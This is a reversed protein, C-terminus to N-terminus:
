KHGVNIHYIEDQIRQAPHTEQKKKVFVEKKKTFMVNTGKDILHSNSMLNPADKWFLIKNLNVPLDSFSTVRVKEDTM